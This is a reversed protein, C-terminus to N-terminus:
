NWWSTEGFQCLEDKKGSILDVEDLKLGSAESWSKRENLVWPIGKRVCLWPHLHVLRQIWLFFCQTHVIQSHDVGEILGSSRTKKTRRDGEWEV